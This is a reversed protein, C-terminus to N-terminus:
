RKPRAKTLITRDARAAQLKSVDDRLSHLPRRESLVKQAFAVGAALPEGKFVKRSGSSRMARRSVSIVAWPSKLGAALRSAMFQRSSLNPGTRSCAISKTSVRDKSRRASSAFTRGALLRAARAPLCVAAYQPDDLVQRMAHRLGQRVASGLANVPPNDVLLVAVTGHKEVSVPSKM